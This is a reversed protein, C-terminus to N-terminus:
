NPSGQLVLQHAGQDRRGLPRWAPVAGAPRGAARFGGTDLSRAAPGVSYLEFWGLPTGDHCPVPEFLRQAQGDLSSIDMAVLLCMRHHDASAPSHWVAVGWGRFSLTRLPAGYAATAWARLTNREASWSGALRPCASASARVEMCACPCLGCSNPKRRSYPFAPWPPAGTLALRATRWQAIAMEGYTKAIACHM